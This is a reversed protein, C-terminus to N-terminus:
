IYKKLTAVLENPDVPKTLISNFLGRKDEPINAAGLYVVPGTYGNKRLQEALDWGTDDLQLNGDTIVLALQEISPVKRTASEIDDALILGYSAFNDRLTSAVADRICRDDECYLIDRINM